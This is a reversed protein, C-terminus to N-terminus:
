DKFANGVVIWATVAVAVIAVLGLGVLSVGFVDGVTIVHNM